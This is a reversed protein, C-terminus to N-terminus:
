FWLLRQLDYLILITIKLISENPVKDESEFHLLKNFSDTVKKITEFHLLKNFSDTVKKITEFNLIKKFSDTVQKITEFHLLKKFSETVKKITEFPKLIFFNISFIPLRNPKLSSPSLWAASSLNPIQSATFFQKARM